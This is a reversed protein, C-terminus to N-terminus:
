EELDKLIDFYTKMEDQLLISDNQYRKQLFDVLNDPEENIIATQYATFDSIYEVYLSDCKEKQEEVLSQQVAVPEKKQKVKKTVLVINVVLLGVMLALCAYQAAHICKWEFEWKDIDFM